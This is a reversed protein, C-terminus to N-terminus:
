RERREGERTPAEGYFDSGELPGNGSPPVAGATAHKHPHRRISWVQRPDRVERRCCRCGAGLPDLLRHVDVEQRRAVDGARRALVDLGPQSVDLRPPELVRPARDDGVVREGGDVPADAVVRALVGAVPRQEVAGDRDVRDLPEEAVHRDLVPPHEIRRRRRGALPHQDDARARAPKAGGVVEGAAAVRDLDAVQAGLGAPHQAEADGGVPERGLHQGGLHPPDLREAYRDDEVVADLVQDGLLLRPLEVRDEGGDAGMEGLADVDRRLVGPRDDVGHGEQAADGLALPRADAAPHGDVTSAVRGHVRGAHRLPEAGLLRHDDVPPRALLHRRVGLLGLVGLALADADVPQPRDGREVAGLELDLHHLEVGVAARLRRSPVLREGGVGDHKREALLGIGLEQPADGPDLDGPVADDLHRGREHGVPRAEEGAAVHHRAHAADRDGRPM